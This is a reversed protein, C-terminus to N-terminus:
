KIGFQKIMWHNSHNKVLDEKIKEGKTDLYKYVKLPISNPFENLSKSILEASEKNQGNSNLAEAKYIKIIVPVNGYTNKLESELDNILNIQFNPDPQKGVAATQSIHEQYALFMNLIQLNKSNKGSYLKQIREPIDPKLEGIDSQLTQEYFDNLLILVTEDNKDTKSDKKIQEIFKNYEDTKQSFSNISILLLLILILNKM